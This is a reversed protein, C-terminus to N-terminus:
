KINKFYTYINLAINKPVLKELEALSAEKLNYVSKFHLLLIKKRTPGVGNIDDLISHINSRLKRHYEIAFRHVEDQIQTILKFTESSKQLIIEKNNYILASTKHNNDKIMGCVPINFNYQELIKKAANIQGKGGDMFIVDPLKTLDTQNYRRKIVEEMSGYDNAGIVTKIKFKRYDSKKPIGNEFVVMAGVNQVGSTNSIDFAEIRIIPNEFGLSNQLQELAINIRTQKKKLQDGQEFFTLEANKRALELLKFKAGKQPTIISVKYGKKNTLYEQLLNVEKPAIQVILEKPIFTAEAYFQLIFDRFLVSASEEIMNKLMFHERGVLKGQRVFYAQILTDEEGKAYALIDQNEHSTNDAAQKQTLKSISNIQNRLIAAREFNLELSAQEMQQQLNSIIEKYNGNLFNIVEQITKNYDDKTVNLICPADCKGIHFNLCAREKNIDRPLNKSCTKLSWLNKTLEIIEWMSSTDTYPGFYKAGDKKIKRVVQIQPFPAKVDIKIYPYHKDDKLRINYKPSYKKILNCELVLAEVETNTVIYEYSAINNIMRITKASHNKNSRFYQSIRNKLNKAKGVYIIEDLENKMLYVGPSTPLNM